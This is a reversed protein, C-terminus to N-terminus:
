HGNQAGSNIILSVPRKFIGAPSELVRGKQEFINESDLSHAPSLALGGRVANAVGLPGAKLHCQGEQYAVRPAEHLQQDSELFDSFFVSMIVNAASYLLKYILDYMYYDEMPSAPARGLLLFSALMFLVYNTDDLAAGLASPIKTPM